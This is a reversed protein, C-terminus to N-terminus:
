KLQCDGSATCVTMVGNEDLRLTLNEKTNTSGPAAQMLYGAAPDNSTLTITFYQNEKLPFADSASPFRHNQAYFRELMQANAMLDARANGMRSNRVFTDYSPYAITALIALVLVVIMLEALTFGQQTHKM